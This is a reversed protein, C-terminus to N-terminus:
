RWRIKNLIGLLKDWFGYRVIDNFFVWVAFGILLAVASQNIADECKQSLPKGRLKEIALFLIHGGDLVPFPLLNFLALSASLIAMLHFVASVGIRIAESTIFFMGLPGTISERVAASGTLLKGIAILTIVTMEWLMKGAFIFGQFINYRVLVVDGSPRIGMLSIKEESGFINKATEQRLGVTLNVRKGDRLVEVSLNPTKKSHVIKTLEPWYTVKKGDVSAILDGKALGSTAAPYGAILEGVNTTLNPYGIVNVVWFCLFGLVYNLFPGAFIVKLRDLPPRSLFEDPKGKCEEWSDGSMKVFGGFAFLCLTYETGGKKWGFLKPGFGLSFREVRIGLRRAQIFHGYEHVVIM